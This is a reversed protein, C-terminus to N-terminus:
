KRERIIHFDEKVAAKAIKKADKMASDIEALAQKMNEAESDKVKYDIFDDLLVGFDRCFGTVRKNGKKTKGTKSDKINVEEEIFACFRDSKLTYKGVKLEM